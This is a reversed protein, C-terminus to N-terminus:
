ENPNPLRVFNELGLAPLVEGSILALKRERPLRKIRAELRSAESRNESMFACEYAVPHRSATYKAGCHATGGCHQSFRRRLDTTIGTYLSGDSCRLIYTYWAM